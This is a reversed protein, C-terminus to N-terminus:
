VIIFTVADAPTGTYGGAVTIFKTTGNYATITKSEGQLAGSTFWLIAGVFTSDTAESLGTKFTASTNSGDTVVAGTTSGDCMAELTDAATSDGSIKGVDVTDTTPDFNNPAVVLPITVKWEFADTTTLMLDVSDVGSAFAADPLDFRYVGPMNTADIEKFGGEAYAATASALTAMTIGVRAGRTRSYSGTMDTYLLGTKGLAGASARIMVEVTVDTSGTKIGGVFQDAM